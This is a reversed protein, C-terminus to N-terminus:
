RNQCIYCLPIHCISSYSEIIRLKIYKTFGQLSHTQIKNKFYEPADNIITPLRFRISNKVFDHKSQPLRFEYAHRTNYNHINANTIFMGTLFNQPLLQNDLKYMLKYEIVRLIDSIKLLGLSKFIPETHANYKVKM